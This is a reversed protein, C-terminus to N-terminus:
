EFSDAKINERWSRAFEAERSRDADMPSDGGATAVLQKETVSYEYVGDVSIAYDPALFSYCHNILSPPGPQRGNLLDVIAAACIKAQSNASFASKPM